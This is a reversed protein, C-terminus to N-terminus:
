PTGPSETKYAAPLSAPSPWSQSEGQLEPLENGFLIPIFCMSQKAPVALDGREEVNLVM